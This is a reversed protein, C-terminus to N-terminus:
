SNLHVVSLPPSPPATQTSGSSNSDATTSPSQLNPVINTSAATPTEPVQRGLTSVDLRRRVTSQFVSEKLATVRSVSIDVVALEISPSEVRHARPKPPIKVGSELKLVPQNKEKENHTNTPPPTPISRHTNVPTHIRTNKHTNMQNM